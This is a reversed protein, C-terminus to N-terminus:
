QKEFFDDTSQELKEYQNKLNNLDKLKMNLQNIECDLENRKELKMAKQQDLKQIEKVIKKIMKSEGKYFLVIVNQSSNKLMSM